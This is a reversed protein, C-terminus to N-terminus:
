FKFKKRKKVIKLNLVNIYARKILCSIRKAFELPTLEQNDKYSEEDILLCIAVYNYVKSDFKYYYGPLLKRKLEEYSLRIPNEPNNDIEYLNIFQNKIM